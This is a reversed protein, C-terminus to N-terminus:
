QNEGKKKNMDEMILQKLYRSLAGYREAEKEAHKLIKKEVEYDTNLSFSKVVKPM